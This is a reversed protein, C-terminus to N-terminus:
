KEEEFVIDNKQNSLPKTHKNKGNLIVLSIEDPFAKCTNDFPRNRHKCEWCVAFYTDHKVGDLKM